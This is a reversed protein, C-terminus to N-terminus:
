DTWVPIREKPPRALQLPAQKSRPRRVTVVNTDENLEWGVEYEEQLRKWSMGAVIELYALDVTFYAAGICKLMLKRIRHEAYDMLRGVYQDVRNRAARYSWYNSHIMADLAQLSRPDTVRFERKVVLAQGYEEGYGALHLMHYAAFEQRELNSLPTVPHMTYLLHLLAPNYTEVQQMLIAARIQFKYVDVVFKDMRGSAM